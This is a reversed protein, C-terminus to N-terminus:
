TGKDHVRAAGHRVVSATHVHSYRLRPSAAAPQRVLCKQHSKTPASTPGPGCRPRYYLFGSRRTHVTSKLLSLRLLVLVALGHDPQVQNIHCSCLELATAPIPASGQVWGEWMVRGQVRGGVQGQGSGVGGVQGQGSGEGGVQGQGPGM